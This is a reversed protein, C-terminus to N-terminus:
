GCTVLELHQTKGESLLFRFSVRQIEKSKLLLSRFLVKLTLSINDPVPQFSYIAIFENGYFYITLIGQLVGLYVM